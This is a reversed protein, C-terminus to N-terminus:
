KEEKRLDSFLKKVYNSRSIVTQAIIGTFTGTIIGSIILVPYYSLMAKGMLFVATIIQGTNHSVAGFVSLVWIYNKLPKIFVAMIFFAFVGGVLSYLMGHGTVFYSLIIRIVLVFFAERRGLLILTVLVIINSLGAKVGPFPVPLPIQAEIIFICMSIAILMSILSIKRM